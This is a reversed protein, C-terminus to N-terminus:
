PHLHCAGESGAEAHRVLLVHGGALEGSPTPPTEAEAAAMGGAAATLMACCAAAFAAASRFRVRRPTKVPNRGLMKM